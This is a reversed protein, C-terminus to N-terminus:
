CLLKNIPNIERERERKEERCVKLDFWFFFLFFTRKDDKIRRCASLQRDKAAESM